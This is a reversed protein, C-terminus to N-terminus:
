VAHKRTAVISLGWLLLLLGLGSPGFSGGGGSDSTTGAAVIDTTFAIRSTAQGDTVAVQVDYNGVTTPTGSIVGTSTDISLGPPLGEASFELPDGEPDSAEIALSVPAGVDFTRKKVTNIHPAFNNSGCRDFTTEQSPQGTVSLLLKVEGCEDPALASQYTLLYGNQLLKAMELQVAELAQGDDAAVYDTGGVQAIQTMTDIEVNSGFGITFVPIGSSDIAGLLEELTTESYHDWGDSLLVIAKPGDVGVPGNEAMMLAEMMADFIQSTSEDPNLPQHIAEEIATTGSPDVMTFDRIFFDAARFKVLGVYDGLQMNRVFSVVSDEVQKNLDDLSGSNDIVFVVSLAVDDQESTIAPQRFSTISMPTENEFIEFDAQNLGTVFHGDADTVTAHVEVPDAQANVRMEVAAETVAPLLSISLLLSFLIIPWAKALPERVLRFLYM